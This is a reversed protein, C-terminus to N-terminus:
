AAKRRKSERPETRRVRPQADLSPVDAGIVDRVFRQMRRVRIRLLADRAADTVPRGM